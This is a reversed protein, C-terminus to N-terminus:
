RSERRRRLATLAAIGGGLLLLSGPEPVAEATLEMVGSVEYNDPGTMQLDDSFGGFFVRLKGNSEFATEPNSILVRFSFQFAPDNMNALGLRDNLGASRWVPFAGSGPNYDPDSSVIGSSWGTPSDLVSWSTVGLHDVDPDAVYKEGWAAAAVGGKGWLNIEDFAFGSSAAWANFGTGPLGGNLGYTTAVIPSALTFDRYRRPAAQDTRGRLPNDASYTWIDAGTFSVQYWGPAAAAETTLGLAFAGLLGLVWFPIHRAM